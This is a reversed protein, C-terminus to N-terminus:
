DYLNNEKIYEIVKEDLYDSVDERNRLKERILSSSVCPTEIDTFIFKGNFEDTLRSIIKQNEQTKLLNDRDIAIFTYKNLLEEAKYWKDLSLIMDAGAIFYIEDNPYLSSIYNLTNISYNKGGQNIEYDSVLINDTELLCTMNLRHFPTTKSNEKHPPTSAVMLIIRDVIKNELLQKCLFMHGKHIPDFTGGFIGTKM